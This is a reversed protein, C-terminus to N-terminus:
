AYADINRGIGISRLYNVIEPPDKPIKVVGGAGRQARTVTAIVQRYQSIAWEVSISIAQM